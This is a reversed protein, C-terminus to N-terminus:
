VFLCLQPGVNYIYIYNYLIIIAWFRPIFSLIYTFVILQNTDEQPGLDNLSVRSTEFASQGPRLESVIIFTETFHVLVFHNTGVPSFDIETESSFHWHWGTDINTRETTRGDVGNSCNRKSHKTLAWFFAAYQGSPLGHYGWFFDHNITQKFYVDGTKRLNWPAFFASASAAAPATSVKVNRPITECANHPAWVFHIHKFMPHHNKRCLIAM